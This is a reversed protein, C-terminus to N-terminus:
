VTGVEGKIKIHILVCLQKIRMFSGSRISADDGLVYLDRNLFSDFYLYPSLLDYLFSIIYIRNSVLFDM